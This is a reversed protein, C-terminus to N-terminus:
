ATSRRLMSAAADLSAQDCPEDARLGEGFHLLWAREGGALLALGDRDPPPCRSAGLAAALLEASPPFYLTVDGRGRHSVFVASGEDAPEGAVSAEWLLQWTGRAPAAGDTMLRLGYWRM